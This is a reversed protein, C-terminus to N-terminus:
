RPSGPSQLMLEALHEAFARAVVPGVAGSPLSEKFGLARALKVLPERSAEGSRIDDVLLSELSGECEEFRALFEPFLARTASDLSVARVIMKRTELRFAANVICRGLAQLVGPDPDTVLDLLLMLARRDHSKVLEEAAAVRVQAEPDALVSELMRRAEPWGLRSALRIVAARLGADADRLIGRLRDVVHAVPQGRLRECVVEPLERGTVVQEDLLPGLAKLWGYAEFFDLAQARLSETEDFLLPLLPQLATVSKFAALASAARARVRPSPDKLGRVLFHIRAEETAAPPLLALVELRVEADGREFAVLLKSMAVPVPDQGVRETRTPEHPVAADAARAISAVAAGLDEGAQLFGDFTALDWGTAPATEIWRLTEAGLRGSGDAPAASAVASPKSFAGQRPVGHEQLTRRVRERFDAINIPKTLYSVVGRQAAALVTERDKHATIVLVPTKNGSKRLAGLVQMGDMRPMSIDLIALSPSDSRIRELAEVGDRAEVVRYGEAVLVTSYLLRASAVDDAVLILPSATEHGQM